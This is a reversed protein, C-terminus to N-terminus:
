YDTLKCILFRSIWNTGVTLLTEGCSDEDWPTLERNEFHSRLQSLTGSAITKAAREFATLQNHEIQYHRIWKHKFNGIPFINRVRLHQKWGIQAKWAIMDVAKYSLWQPLVVKVRVTPSSCAATDEATVYERRLESPTDQIALKEFQITGTASPLGFTWSTKPTHTDSWAHRWVSSDEICISSCGKHSSTHSTPTVVSHHETHDKFTSLSGAQELM